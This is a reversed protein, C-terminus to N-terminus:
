EGKERVLVVIRDVCNLVLFMDGRNKLWSTDYNYPMTYMSIQHSKTPEDFEYNEISM